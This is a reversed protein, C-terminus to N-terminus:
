IGDQERRRPVKQSVIEYEGRQLTDGGHRRTGNTTQSILSSLEKGGKTGFYYMAGVSAMVGILLMAYLSWGRGSRANGRVADAEGPCMKGVYFRLPDAEPPYLPVTVIAPTVGGAVGTCRWEVVFELPEDDRSLDLRHQGGLDEASALSVRPEIGVRRVESPVIVTPKMIGQAGKTTTVFFSTQEVDAPIIALTSLGAASTPRSYKPRLGSSLHFIDGKNAQALRFSSAVILTTARAFDRSDADNHEEYPDNVHQGGVEDQPLRRENGILYQTDFDEDQQDEIDDDDAAAADVQMQDRGEPMPQPLISGRADDEAAPPQAVENDAWGNGDGGAIKGEGAVSQDDPNGWLAGVFGDNNGNAPVISAVGAWISSPCIKTWSWELYGVKLPMTIGVRTTGQDFCAYSVNLQASRSDIYVDDFEDEALESGAQGSGNSRLAAIDSLAQLLTETDWGEAGEEEDDPEQLLEGGPGMSVYMDHSLTPQAISKYARVFPEVAQFVGETMTIWFRTEEEDDRIINDRGSAWGPAVLGDKVVESGGETVGVMLGKHFIGQPLVTGGCRKPVTFVIQGDNIPLLVTVPVLGAARCNYTIDLTLGASNKAIQGGQAASGSLEPKVLSSHTALLPPQFNLTQEGINDGGVYTFYFTTSVESEPVIIGNWNPDDRDKQGFYHISPFGDHVVENGGQSTGIRFGQIGVGGTEVTLVSDSSNCNKLFSLTISSRPPKSAPALPLLPITLTYMTNGDAVCHFTVTFSAHSTANVLGGELNGSLIPQSIDTTTILEAKGYAVDVADAVSTNQYLYFTLFQRNSKCYALADTSSQLRYISEVVGNYMQGHASRSFGINLGPIPVTQNNEDISLGLAEHEAKEEVDAAQQLQQEDISPKECQKRVTWQVSGVETLPLSVTVGAVGEAECRYDLILELPADAKLKLPDTTVISGSVKPQAIVTGDESFATVIPQEYTYGDANTTTIFFTSTPYDIPVIDAKRLWNEEDWKAIASYPKLTIGDDVVDHAGVVTAVDVAIGAVGETRETGGCQKEMAFTVKQKPEEKVTLIVTFASSGEALCNFTLSFKKVNNHQMAIKGKLNESVTVINSEAVYLLPKNLTRTVDGNYRITLDIRKQTAPITYLPELAESGDKGGKIQQLRFPAVAQGHLVVTHKEKDADILEIDFQAGASQVDVPAVNKKAPAAAAKAKAAAPKKEAPEAYPDDEEDAAAVEEEKGAEEKEPAACTRKVSYEIEKRSRAGSTVEFSRLAINIFTTGAKKCSTVLSFTIPETEDVLAPLLRVSRTGWNQVAADLVENDQVFVVPRQMTISRAKGGAVEEDTQRRWIFFDSVDAIEATVDAAEDAEQKTEIHPRYAPQTHDDAIVNPTNKATGINLLYPVNDADAIDALWGNPASKGGKAKPKDKKPPKAPTPKKAATIPPKKPAAKAKENSGRLAPAPAPPAEDAEEDDEDAAAAPAAPVAPEADPEVDPTALQEDVDGNAAAAPPAPTAKAPKKNPAKGKQAFSGPPASLLIFLFLSLLILRSLSLHTSM